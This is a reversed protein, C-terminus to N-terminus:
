RRKTKVKKGKKRSKRHTSKKRKSKKRKTKKRKSKKRKTKKGKKQKNGKKGGRPIRNRIQYMAAATLDMAEPLEFKALLKPDSISIEPYKTLAKFKKGATTGIVDCNLGAGLEDFAENALYRLLTGSVGKEEREEGGTVVKLLNLNFKAAMPVLVKRFHVVRDSGVVLIINKYGAKSIRAPIGGIGGKALLVNEPQIIKNNRYIEKLLYLKFESTLPTDNEGPLNVYKRKGEVDHKIRDKFEKEDMDIAQKEHMDDRNLNGTRIKSMLDLLGKKSALGDFKNTKDSVFIVPDADNADAFERVQKGLREHGEHPPNFKGLTFVITDSTRKPMYDSASAAAM